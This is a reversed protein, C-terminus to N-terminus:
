NKAAFDGVQLCQYRSGRRELVFLRSGGDTAVACPYEFAGPQQGKGGIMALLNGEHDFHSVVQRISDVIWLTGDNGVTIGAPFAFNEYGADHKGFARELTGDSAYLEVMKTACANTIWFRNEADIAFGTICSRETAPDRLTIMSVVAGDRIGAIRAPKCATSAYVTGDAGQSVHTFREPEGCNDEPVDIHSMSRGQPDIVDLYPVQTDVLYVLGLKDVVLNYPQGVIQLGNRNAVYHSFRFVPMGSANFVVVQGNGTDAVYCEDKVSDYFIGMPESLRTVYDSGVGEYLPRVQPAQTQAHSQSGVLALSASSLIMSAATAGASAALAGIVGQGANKLFRYV